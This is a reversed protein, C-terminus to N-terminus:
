GRSIRVAAEPTILGDRALRRAAAAFNPASLFAHRALLPADAGDYILRRMASDIPVVEFAGVAGATGTGGCAHCGDASWLLTGSDLGLLSSVSGFAQEARRCAPCLRPARRQAVVLRMAAALAFRDVALRRLALIAAIADAADITVIVREREAAGILEGVAARDDGYGRSRCGCQAAMADAAGEPDTGAVVLMGTPLACAEAVRELLAAPLELAEGAGAEPDTMSRTAM